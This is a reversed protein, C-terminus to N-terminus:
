LYHGAAECQKESLKVEGLVILRVAEPLDGLPDDQDQDDDRTESLKRKNTAKNGSGVINGM